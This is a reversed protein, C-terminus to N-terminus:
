KRLIKYSYINVDNRKVILIYYGQADPLQLLYKDRMVKREDVVRGTQDLVTIHVTENPLSLKKEITVKGNVEVPNPYVRIYQGAPLETTATVLYYYNESLSSECGNLVVKVSYNGNATPKYRQQNAGSIANAENYWQNGSISSSVLEVGEKGIIPKSPKMFISISDSASTSNCGNLSVLVRFRGSEAAAYTSATAGAINVDNKQWQFTYGNESFATLLVTSGECATSSNKSILAKPFPNVKFTVTSSKNSVCGNVKTNVSYLASSTVEISKASVFNLLTDNRFWQYVSDSSATLVVKTGECVTNSSVSVSGAAPRSKVTIQVSHSVTSSCTANAYKATFIGTEFVKLISDSAGTILKDNKFWQIETKRDANLIVSDGECFVSPGNLSLVPADTNCIQGSADITFSKEEAFASGAYSADVAQVSWYYTGPKLEIDWVKKRGTNGEEAVMRYGNPLSLSVVEDAIGTKSGVRM